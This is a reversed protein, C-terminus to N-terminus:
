IVVKNKFIANVRALMGSHNLFESPKNNTTALVIIGNNLELFRILKDMYNIFAKEFENKDHEYKKYCFDDIFLYKITILPKYDTNLNDINKYFERVSKEDIWRSSNAALDANYQSLWNDAYRRVYNDNKFDFIIKEIRNKVEEHWAHMITTKGTLPKGLLITSETPVLLPSLKKSEFLSRNVYKNYADLRETKDVPPTPEVYNVSPNSFIETLKDILDKNDM